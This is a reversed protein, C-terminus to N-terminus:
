CNAPAVIFEALVIYIHSELLVNLVLHAPDVVVIHLRGEKIVVIVSDSITILYALTVVVM